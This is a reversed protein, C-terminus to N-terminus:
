DPVDPEKKNKNAKGAIEQVTSTFTVVTTVTNDEGSAHALNSYGGCTPQTTMPLM